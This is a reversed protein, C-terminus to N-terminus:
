SDQRVVSAIKEALQELLASYVAAVDEPESGRAQSSLESIQQSILEGSKPRTLTWEAVLLAATDKMSFQVVAISVGYDPFSARRWPFTQVQQTELLAALNIATVRLVGADLTEAWRHYDALELKNPSRNLVMEKRKLYDPVTVPGVGISPGERGPTGQTEASLMYYDSRPTSGCAALLSLLSFVALLKLLKM